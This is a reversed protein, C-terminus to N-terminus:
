QPSAAHVLGELVYTVDALATEWEELTGGRTKDVDPTIGKVSCGWWYLCAVPGLVGNPGPCVLPGWRAQAPSLNSPQTTSLPRKNGRWTPQISVWYSWWATEMAPIDKVEPKLRRGRGDRVWDALARPKVIKVGDARQFSSASKKFGYATELKCLLDLVRSYKDGLGQATIQLLPGALWSSKTAPSPIYRKLPSTSPPLAPPAITRAVPTTKAAAPLLPAATTAAAASPLAAAATTAAPPILATPTTTTAAPPLLATPTTGGVALPLPSTKNTGATSPLPLPPATAISVILSQVTAPPTLANSPSVCSAPPPSPMPHVSPLASTSPTTNPSPSATPFSVTTSASASLAGNGGTGDEAQITLGGTMSDDQAGEREDVETVDQTADVEMQAGDGENAGRVDRM